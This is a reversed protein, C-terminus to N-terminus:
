FTFRMLITLASVSVTAVVQYTVGPAFLYRRLNDLWLKAKMPDKSINVSIEADFEVTFGSPDIYHRNKLILPGHFCAVMALTCPTPQGLQSKSNAIVQVHYLAPLAYILASAIM